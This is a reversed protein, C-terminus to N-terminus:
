FSDNNEISRIAERTEAGTKYFDKISFINTFFSFITIVSSIFGIIFAVKHWKAM